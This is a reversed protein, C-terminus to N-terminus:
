IDQKLIIWSRTNLAVIITTIGLILLDIGIFLGFTYLSSAPWGSLILGGLLVTIVGSFLAWGWGPLPSSLTNLIRLFGIFLYFIALLLVLSASVTVPAKIFLIATLLYLLGIMLHNLFKPGRGWWFMFANLVSIIGACLLLTGLFIISILTATMSHTLSLIGLLTFLIGWGFLWGWYKNRPYSEALDISVVQRM